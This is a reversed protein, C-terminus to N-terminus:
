PVYVFENTNFVALCLDALARAAAPDAGDPLGAPLGIPQRALMRDRIAPAQEGLFALSARLEAERPPRGVARRYLAKVQAAPDAGVTRILDAAMAKSQERAFPGNMLILAQPAFTSVSRAACSNLTDPQDFAELMPLRVNRKVFLYVSRRTHQKPDPTVRWLGAPEDETFILDYVEPELPVKVSPGGVERTLTGAVTLVADRITEAELRRRNMRWLLRNDPDTTAADPPIPVRSAQRYTASLVMLKHMRKLTWPEGRTPEVLECALWDLLEPHTPRDGRTGFDNPTGVIGRGFHHQWLRNVIVRATLPHDPRTLWRALDLRNKPTEGEEAVVRPFAPTVAVSKRKVDGRRLVHTTPIKKEDTVAWAQPPLSPLEDEIRLQEAKLADRKQRDAPSLVALVDDWTIKLLPKAAEALKKQAPTRKNSPTDIAKRTWPDLKAKREAALKARYPAELDAIQKKVPSLKITVSLLKRQLDQKEDDTALDVDKFVTGAFFAQLRYYDGLSLPDFKHDHCRACGVTLGLVASGVGNVM